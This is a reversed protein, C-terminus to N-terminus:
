KVLRIKILQLAQATVSGTGYGASPLTENVKGTRRVRGSGYKVTSSDLFMRRKGSVRLLHLM